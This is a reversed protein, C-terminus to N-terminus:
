GASAALVADVREKLESPFTPKRVYGKIGLDKLRADVKQNGVVSFVLVPTEIGKARLLELLRVGTFQDGSAEGTGPPLLIDLLILDADQLLEIRELAEQASVICEFQYTRELPEIVRRIVPIDDEIWVIKKPM